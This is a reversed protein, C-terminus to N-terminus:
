KPPRVLRVTERLGVKLAREAAPGTLHVVVSARRTIKRVSAVTGQAGVDVDYATNCRTSCFAQWRRKPAFLVSCYPCTRMQAQAPDAICQIDTM